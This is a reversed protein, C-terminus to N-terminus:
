RDAATAQVAARALPALLHRDGPGLWTCHDIEPPQGIPEGTGNGRFAVLRALQGPRGHAPGAVEAVQELTARDLEVAVEEWVERVVTDMWSEGAEPLGGPLYYRDVGVPRVALLLDGRLCVWTM